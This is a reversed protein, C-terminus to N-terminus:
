GRELAEFRKDTKLNILYANSLFGENRWDKAWEDPCLNQVQELLKLAYAYLKRESNGSYICNYAIQLVRNFSVKSIVEEPTYQSTLEEWNATKILNEMTQGLSRFFSSVQNLISPSAEPQECIKPVIIPANRLRFQRTVQEWIFAWFMEAQYNKKWSNSVRLVALGDSYLCKKISEKAYAIAQDQSLPPDGPIHACRALWILVIPPPPNAGNYARLFAEYREDEMACLDYWVGLYADYEWSSSWREPYRAQIAELIHMGYYFDGVSCDLLVHVIKIGEDFSFLSAIYEPSYTQKLLHWNKSELLAYFQSVM